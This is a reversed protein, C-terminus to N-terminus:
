VIEKPSEVILSSTNSSTAINEEIKVQEVLNATHECAKVISKEVQEPTPIVCATEISAMGGTAMTEVEVHVNIEEVKKAKDEASMFGKCGGTPLLVGGNRTICDAVCNKCTENKANHDAVRKIEEEEQAKKLAEADAKIDAEIKAIKEAEAKAVKEAKAEEKAKAKAEADAIAKAKAEAEVKEAEAKADAEAKAKANAEEQIKAEKDAKVKAVKAEQELERAKIQAKMEARYGKGDFEAYVKCDPNYKKGEKCRREHSPKRKRGCATCRM